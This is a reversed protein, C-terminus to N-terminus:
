DQPGAVSDTIKFDYTCTSTGSVTASFGATFPYTCDMDTARLTNQICPGASHYVRTGGTGAGIPPMSAYLPFLNCAGTGTYSDVTYDDGSGMLGFKFDASGPGTVTGFDYSYHQSGL